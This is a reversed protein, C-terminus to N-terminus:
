AESKWNSPVGSWATGCHSVALIYIDDEEIYFITEDTFDSFREAGESDIIYYQYFDIYEYDIYEGQEELTRAEEKTIEEGECYYHCTEGSELCDFIFIDRKALNDVYYNALVLSDTCWEVMELFSQKEKRLRELLERM